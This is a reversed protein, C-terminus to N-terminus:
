EDEEEINEIMADRPIMGKEIMFDMQHDTFYLKGLGYIKNKINQELKRNSRFLM